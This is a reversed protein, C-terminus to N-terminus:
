AGGEKAGADIAALTAPNVKSVTWSQGPSIRRIAVPLELLRHTMSERRPMRMLRFISPPHQGTTRVAEPLREVTAALRVPSWRQFAAVEDLSVGGSSHAPRLLRVVRAVIDFHRPTMRSQVLNQLRTREQDDRRRVPRSLAQALSVVTSEPADFVFSVGFFRRFVAMDAPHAHFFRAELVVQGVLERIANLAFAMTSGIIQDIASVSPQYIGYGVFSFQEV